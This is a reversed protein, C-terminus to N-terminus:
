MDLVYRILKVDNGPCFIDATKAEKLKRVKCTATPSSSVQIKFNNAETWLGCHSIVFAVLM